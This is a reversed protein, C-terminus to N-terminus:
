ATIEEAFMKRYQVNNLKKTTDTTMFGYDERWCSDCFAKFEEFTFDSGVYEIYIDRTYKLKQKFVCLFNVNERILQRDVKIYSQTLYVCSINKHRGRSFYDKIILQQQENVCDIFVVPSNPECEDVSILDECNSYFHAIETNEQFSLKEYTKKLNQYANQELSKTFMYLHLFPIVWEKLILNFLLTTKGCGSTGM